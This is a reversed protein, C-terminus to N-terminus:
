FTLLVGGGLWLTGLIILALPLFAGMHESETFRITMSSLPSAAGPSARWFLIGCFFCGAEWWGPNGLGHDLCGRARAGWRGSFNSFYQFCILFSFTSIPINKKKEQKKKDKRRRKGASDQWSSTPGCTKKQLFMKSDRYFLGLFTTKGKNPGRSALMSCKQRCIRIRRSFDDGSGAPFSGFGSDLDFYSWVHKRIVREISLMM